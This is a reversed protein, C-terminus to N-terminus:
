SPIAGVEQSGTDITTLPWPIGDLTTVGLSFVANVYQIDATTEKDRVLRCGIVGGEYPSPFIPEGENRIYNAAILAYPGIKEKLEWHYFPFYPPHPHSPKLAPIPYYFTLPGVSWKLEMTFHYETPNSPEEKAEKEEKEERTESCRGMVEVGVFNLSTYLTLPYTVLPYKKLRKMNKGVRFYNGDGDPKLPIRILTNGPTESKQKQVPLTGAPIVVGGTSEEFSM